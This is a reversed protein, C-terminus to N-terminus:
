IYRVKRSAMKVDPSARKRERAAKGEGVRQESVWEWWSTSQLSTQQAVQTNFLSELREAIRKELTYLKFIMTRPLVKSTIAPVLMAIMVSCCNCFTIFVNPLNQPINFTCFCSPNCFIKLYFPFLTHGGCQLLPVMFLVAAVVWVVSM